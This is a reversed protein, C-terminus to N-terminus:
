MIDNLSLLSAPTSLKSLGLIRYCTWQRGRGLAIQEALYDVSFVPDLAQEKTIEPHDPLHIQVVGFSTMGLGPTYIGHPGLNYDGENMPDYGSECKIVADLTSSAIDYKMASQEILNKVITTTALPMTTPNSFQVSAVLGVTVMFAHM